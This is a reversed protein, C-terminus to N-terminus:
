PPFQGNVDDKFIQILLRLLVTSAQGLKGFRGLLRCGMM